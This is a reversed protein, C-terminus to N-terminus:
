KEVKPCYTLLNSVMQIFNKAEICREQLKEYTDLGDAFRQEELPSTTKLAYTAAEKLCNRAENIKRIILEQREM